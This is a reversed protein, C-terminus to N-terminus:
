RKMKEKLRNVARVLLPLPRRGTLEDWLLTWIATQFTTMLSGSVVAAVVALMLGFTMLASMLMVSQLGAALLTLVIIPIAVVVFGALVALGLALGTFMVLVVTELSVLWNAAFLRVAKRVSERVGTGHVASEITAFIAIVAIVLALSLCAIFSLGYLLSTVLRGDNMLALLSTGTAAAALFAIAKSGLNITFIPWFRPMGLRVGESFHVDAGGRGLRDCSRVLAAVAVAVIWAFVALMVLGLCIVIAVALARQPLLGLSSWGAAHRWGAMPTLEVGNRMTRLFIESVGGFGVFTAFFGFLWM